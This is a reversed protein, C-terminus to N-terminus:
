SAPSRSSRCCGSSSTAGASPRASSARRDGPRHRGPLVWATSLTAFMRPRLSEPLSRGIAVYAIPPITGAGLGQIFRAGVLIPMSPALGGILLGIAFLASASRRVPPRARWPRHRRRRRRHRDALRPLVRHLGLRLARPRRARPRRDAPGDLDRAGRLRRAHDDPRARHDPARRDPRGSATPAPGPRNCARLSPACPRVTGRARTAAGPRRETATAAPDPSRRAARDAVDARLRESPRPGSARRGTRCGTSGWCRRGSCPRRTSGGSPRRRARGRAIATPSGRRSRRRRRARFVGGALVVDPDRRALHLRRIIAGAM